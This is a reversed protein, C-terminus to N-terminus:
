TVAMSVLKESIIIRRVVSHQESNSGYQSTKRFHLVYYLHGILLNKSGYQSTKRFDDHDCRRPSRSKDSGYQSTKRFHLQLVDSLGIIVNRVQWVLQNKQFIPQCISNSSIDHTSGYQSTKRFYTQFNHFLLHKNKRVAM